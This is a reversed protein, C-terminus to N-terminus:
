NRLHALTFYINSYGTLLVNQENIFSFHGYVATDSSVLFMNPHAANLFCILKLIIVADGTRRDHIKDM